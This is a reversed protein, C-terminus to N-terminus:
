QVEVAEVVIEESFMTNLKQITQNLRQEIIPDIDDLLDITDSLSYSIDKLEQHVSKISEKLFVSNERRLLNKSKRKHIKKEETFKEKDQIFEIQKEHLIKEDQVIETERQQLDLTMKEIERKQKEIRYNESAKPNYQNYTTIINKLDNHTLRGSGYGDKRLHTASYDIYKNYYTIFEQTLMNQGEHYINYRAGRNDKYLDILSGYNTLYEGRFHDKVVLMKKTGSIKDNTYSIGLPYCEHLYGYASCVLIYEDNRLNYNESSVGIKYACEKLYDENFVIEENTRTCRCCKGCTRFLGSGILKPFVDGLINTEDFFKDSEEKMKNEVLQSILPFLEDKLHQETEDKIKSLINKQVEM